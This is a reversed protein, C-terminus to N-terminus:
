SGIVASYGRPAQRQGPALADKAGLDLRSAHLLVLWPVFGLAFVQSHPEAGRRLDARVAGHEGGFPRPPQPSQRKEATHRLAHALILQPQEAHDRERQQELVVVDRGQAVRALEDALAEPQRLRLGSAQEGPHPQACQWRHQEHREGIVHSAPLEEQDAQHAAADSRQQGRERLRELLEHERLHEHARAQDRSRGGREHDHRLLERRV